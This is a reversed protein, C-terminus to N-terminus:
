RQRVTDSRGSVSGVVTCLIISVDDLCNDIAGDTVMLPPCTGVEVANGTTSVEM